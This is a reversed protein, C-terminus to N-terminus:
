VVVIEKPDGAGEVASDNQEQKVGKEKLEQPPSKNGSQNGKDDLDISKSLERSASYGGRAREGIHETYIVKQASVVISYDTETLSDLFSRIHTDDHKTLERFARICHSCATAKAARAKDTISNVILAVGSAAAFLCIISAVLSMDQVTKRASELEEPTMYDFCFTLTCAASFLLGVHAVLDIYNVVIYRWPKFFAVSCFYVAFCIMMWILQVIGDGIVLALNLMFGKLLFAAVWWYTDNRFKIFLFKWRAQIEPRHVQYPAMIIAWTFVSGVGIVWLLIGIIGVALVESWQDEYCTISRDIALSSTGNPNGKCVFITLGLNVVAAYFTLLMSCVANFARNKEMKMDKKPIAQSILWTLFGLVLYALPFVVKLTMLKKFTFGACGPKFATEMDSTFSLASFYGNMGVPMEIDAKAINSLLQYHNILIFGVAVCGNKWSGWQAFKDGSTKYVLSVVAPVLLIPLVPFLFATTEVDACKACTVGDYIHGDECNACAQDQMKTPCAGPEGGPCKKETDCMFVSLPDESSSWYMPKLLPYIKAMDNADSGFACSMGIPCTVCEGSLGKARYSGEPCQCDEKAQAGPFNTTLSISGVGGCSICEAGGEEDRYKGVECRECGSQGQQSQHLGIGCDKCVSGLFKTFKGADCAKCSNGNVEYGPSCECSKSGDDFETNEPCSECVDKNYNYNPKTPDTCTKFLNSPLGATGSTWESGGHFKVAQGDDLTIDVVGDEENVIGVKRSKRDQIQYLAPVAVRDGAGYATRDSPFSVRGSAGEFETKAMANIAADYTTEKMHWLNDASFGQDSLTNFLLVAMCIADACSAAEPRAEYKCNDRAVLEAPINRTMEKTWQVPSGDIKCERATHYDVAFDGVTYSADKTCPAQKSYDNWAEPAATLGYENQAWMDEETCGLAKMDEMAGVPWTSVYWSITGSLMGFIGLRAKACSLFRLADSYGVFLVARTRVKLVEGLTTMADEDNPMKMVAAPNGDLLDELKFEPVTRQVYPRFDAGYATDYICAVKSWGFISYLQLVTKLTLQDPPWIRYFNPYNSRESLASSAAAQAIHPIMAENLIPNASMTAGSCGSGIFTFPWSSKELLLTQTAYKTGYRGSCHDDMTTLRLTRNGRIFGDKNVRSTLIDAALQMSKGAAWGCTAEDGYCFPQMVFLSLANPHDKRSVPMNSPNSKAEWPSFPYAKGKLLMGATFSIWFSFSM